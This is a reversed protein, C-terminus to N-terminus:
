DLSLKQLDKHPSNPGVQLFEDETILGAKVMDAKEITDVGRGYLVVTTTRHNPTDGQNDDAVMAEGGPPLFTKFPYHDCDRGAYSSCTGDVLAPDKFWEEEPKESIGTLFGVDVNPCTLRKASSKDNDWTGSSVLEAFFKVGTGRPARDFKAKYMLFGKHIEQMNAKCATVKAADLAEPIKPVLFTALIGIILIVALLEILTFGARASSRFTRLM